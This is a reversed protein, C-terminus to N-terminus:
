WSLRQVKVPVASFDVSAGNGLQGELGRGWCKVGESSTIACVTDDQVTVKTVESCGQVITPGHVEADVSGVGLQGLHNLGWCTVRGSALIACGNSGGLAVSVAPEDLHVRTPPEIDGRTGNGIQGYMNDGWCTVRGQHDVACGAGGGVGVSVAGTVGPVIRYPLLSPDEDSPFVPDLLAWICKVRGAYTTVCSAGDESASVVDWLGAVYEPSANCTSSGTCGWYQVRMEKTIVSTLDWGGSIGAVRDLGTVLVPENCSVGLMGAANLGLVVGSDNVGCCQVKGDRMVECLHRWGMTFSVGGSLAPIEVPVPVFDAFDRGFYHMDGWCMVEGSASLACVAGIGTDIGVAEFPACCGRECRIFGEECELDCEGSSCIAKGHRTAPCALCLPGCQQASEEVCEGDCRREGEACGPGDCCGTQCRFFGDDCVIGCQSDVCVAVGNAVEPCDVCAIGCHEPSEDYCVGECLRQGTSCDVLEEVLCCGSECPEYDQECELACEGESCVAVGHPAEPCVDCDIGCNLVSQEVCAGDCYVKPDACVGVMRESSCGWFLLLAGVVLCQLSPLRM